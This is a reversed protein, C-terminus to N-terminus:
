GHKKKIEKAKLIVHTRKAHRGGSRAPRSAWSASSITIVTNDLDMGNTLVNGKLSKLLTIFQKSANIPYRGAFGGKRHPIEGKFPVAIKYQTVKQLDAIANDIKKGKIFSSIYMAHKKSMHMSHGNAIAEYKKVKKEEKKPAKKEESRSEEAPAQEKKMHMGQEMEAALKKDVPLPKAAVKKHEKKEEQQTMTEAM